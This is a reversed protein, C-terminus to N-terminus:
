YETQALKSCENLIHMVTEYRENCARCKKSGQHKLNSVRYAKTTLTLDQAAVILSDTEKKLYRTQLWRWCSVLEQCINGVYTHIM